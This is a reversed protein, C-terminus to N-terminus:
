RFKENEWRLLYPTPNMLDSRRNYPRRTQTLAGRGNGRYLEFHLMPRCCGSNVVGMTGVRDGMKVKAGRRIKSPVKANIEGYRVIFGGTHAVEVAYTGQYFFYRDRVVTGPAVSIIPENRYRYLDAAGHSRTGGGRRAGFMRMGSTYAHTVRAVTPFECCKPDDLGTITTDSNREVVTRDILHACESEEKIYSKAVWGINQDQEERDMFQVRVFEYEVRDITHTKENQEWGQFFKVKEGVRAQFIVNDLSDDRVNLTTQPVCVVSNLGSVFEDAVIEEEAEAEGGETELIQEEGSELDVDQNLLKNGEGSQEVTHEQDLDDTNLVYDILGPYLTQTEDLTYTQIKSFIETEEESVAIYALPVSIDNPSFVEFLNYNRDTDEFEPCDLKLYSEGRPIKWLSDNLETVEQESKIQIIRDEIASLSQDFLFGEDGRASQWKQTLESENKYNVGLVQVASFNKEGRGSILKVLSGNRLYSQRVGRSNRLNETISTGAGYYQSIRFETEDHPSTKCHSADTLGSQNDWYYTEYAHLSGSLLLAIIPSVIAKASM